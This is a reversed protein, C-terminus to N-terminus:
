PSDIVLFLVPESEVVVSGDTVKWSRSWLGATDLDTTACDFYATGAPGSLISASKTLVTGDPKKLYLVVTATTLDWTTGDKTATLRFRYTSGIVLTTSM